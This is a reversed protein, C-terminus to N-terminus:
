LEALRGGTVRQSVGTDDLYRTIGGLFFPFGAGLLLCTDADRADAVVGERLLRAIEDALAELVARQLEDSSQPAHEVVVADDRGEAYGELTRSLPFREPFARHMEHLVHNAVSPGVMQLLVSPAMPMGLRLIAEDTEEVPTGRDVAQMLVSTMRTLIRNVVFGPADAVVVPRKRLNEAVAAATALATDSTERARVLEVLPMLPVPNFFHMGVLRDPRRLEAAMAGVSLASTNTALVADPAVVEELTAFVQEKVRLDEVVAELVLDCGGFDAYSTTATVLAAADPEVDARITELASDVIEDSIDSIVLPLELRRLFLTALQTAMLGAGAIGVKEVKRPEARPIRPGPKARREVLDFAYVSAQAQRSPLLEALAEEERRYGEELPWMLSGELLDLAVYPAPAAGHVVDDVRSRARRLLTETDEATPRPRPSQSAGNEALLLRLSEELFHAAGLLADAFGLEFAKHGDLMRNQRLPNDVVFKIATELGVLHPILQTGGWAPIIGLFVEPCAFHRVAESITRRRCHLAIEVGGGLCAGNIAAVSPYPLARIRGFLEHGARSGARAFEATAGKFQDVDAGASFAPGAGTLLLGRWDGDELQPLLRGLSELAYRDFTPPRAADARSDITVLAVAGAATERRQLKFETTPM